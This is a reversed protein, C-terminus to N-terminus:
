RGKRGVAEKGEILKLGENLIRAFKEGEPTKKFCVYLKKDELLRPNMRIKGKLEAFSPLHTLLHDLVNPDVVALDQRGGALKKLNTEDSTAVEVRIKGEAVWKDFKETNVYDQVVGVRYKALDDLTNWSIPRDTREALGLPGVGIPESFLFERAVSPSHYEPFYGAYAPDNRASAVARSWPFFTIELKYGMAAFAATAVAASTGKGPLEEGSYPPWQLSALRVNKEAGLATAAFLAVAAALVATIRKSNGMALRGHERRGQNLIAKRVSFKRGPSAGENKRREM